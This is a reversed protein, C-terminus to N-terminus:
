LRELFGTLEEETIYLGQMRKTDTDTVLLLDGKGLLNEAGSMDLITQSDVHSPLRFSVRYPINAKLAGTVIQASPRQTSIVLHIGLNRVRQALMVLLKEFEKRTGQLEAAQILDAYEDIIVVLRRMYSSPNKTNYSDIDRCRSEKLLATRIEKDEDNIKRIVKLAEAADTIVHGGYLMPLGEFFTFDTQKPDIILLQLSDEQYQRLLSVIISYLFITKGSGTTGAVLLHPAKALDVVEIRGDPIQGALFDLSGEAGDLQHLNEILGVTRAAGAFPIDVSIYRTGRIHNVLLEGDAEMQIGIDVKYKEIAKMTEGSKLEVTFRTFRAAEQVMDPDVPQAQIGYDRFVKNLRACKDIIDRIVGKKAARDENKQEFGGGPLSKESIAGSWAPAQDRATNEGVGHTKDCEDEGPLSALEGEGTEFPSELLGSIISQIERSGITILQYRCGEPEDRGALWRVSSEAHEFDVFSISRSVTIRLEGAFLSNLRESLHHKEEPKISSQYLADFVQERLIERRSVTTIKESAGFIERILAELVSVQRVAHGAITDGEIQFASEHNSYTKVEILDVAAEDESLFDIGVLDPLRNDDRDSLWERALQTDLGVLMAGSHMQLYRIASVALGLSGKGHNAEFVRNTSHSVISLLGEDNIERVARIINGIGKENPIFNGCQKILYDFGKEFKRLNKSYIGISRYDNERYFLKESVARLSIDWSKLSQDLIVLWDAKMLLSDYTERKLPTNFFTSTHSFTSPQENLKELISAYTSFIGGENAPRIEVREDIPNYQYVKPVCLPHIHLQRSNQAAAIRVENPDFIALIHQEKDLEALIKHYPLRKEAIKLRFKLSRRGKVQGLMGDNLAEDGIEIWDSDAEKTRFISVEIGSVNFERDKDLQKLMEVIAEVSPPDIFAIRLMMSSHPYLCMYRIIAKKLDGIGSESQNIQRRTSYVPLTGIRGALPLFVAGQSRITAPFLMVSLPDPIDGAKRIIFSKDEESLQGEGLEDIGRESLIEEALKIYKWLYLPNLPTPVAHCAKTGLIFVNDLSIIINVLQKANSPAIRWIRPFEDNVATLLREYANLYATFSDKKLLVQLMPVDQLRKKWSLLAERATLFCKLATSITEGGDVLGSIKRLNDWVIELYERTFPVYEYKVKLDDLAETPSQVDAYITGGFDDESVLEEAIRESLPEPRVQIKIGEHCIEVHRGQRSDSYDDIEHGLQDLITELRQSNDEFVIQAALATPNTYGGRARAPRSGNKRAAKLCKEVADVDMLRLLEINKTKYFQLILRPTERDKQGTYYDTISQREAQELNGIREVLSHNHRIRKVLEEVGPRSSIINADSCLGLRYFHKQVVEPLTVPDAELLEELYELVREFNLINRVSKRRLAQLLTNIVQNSQALREKVYSCSELYVAELSIEPFWRLSSLKEIEVRKIILIRFIGEDGSNRSEEAEEVSFAYAVNEHIPLDVRLEEIAEKSFGLFFLEARRGCDLGDVFSRYNFDPLNLVAVGYEEAYAKRNVLRVIVETLLRTRM